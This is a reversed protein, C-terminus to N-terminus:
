QPSSKVANSRRAARQRPEAIPRGSALARKRAEEVYRHIDNGCSTLLKQRAAHLEDLIPNRGM